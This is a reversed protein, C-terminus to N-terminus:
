LGPGAVTGTTTPEAPLTTTESLPDITTTTTTPATEELEIVFWLTEDPAINATGTDKYALAPPIGLLRQGGVKMGVLGDQWGQIFSNLPLTLPERDFNQDFIEGSSCASGLYSVTITDDKKIAAGDGEKLDKKVLKTPPAGEEIEFEPAGEPLDSKLAVCPEGKVSPLTTNGAADPTSGNSADVTDGDDDGGFVFFLAILAALGLGGVAVAWRRQRARRALWEDAAAREEKNM